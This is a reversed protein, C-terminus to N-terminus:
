PDDNELGLIRRYAARVNETVDRYHALLAAEAPEGPQSRYGMRRALAPIGPARTEIISSGTGYLVHIRQELRRLFSYGERLTDHDDPALYGGASLAELAVSTDPSRVSPDRGNMLQLHQVAFEVDLLGGRGTKLDLRHPRERGLEREMRVRLHHMDGASAAGGGYAAREAVKLARAGLEADGAAFRARILAQREWAAGSSGVSGNVAEGELGSVSVMHYRAFATLSTVLMGHSGSPRLRTDLEYGPGSVHPESILRIVSGAARSFYAGAEDPEPARAQDYIFVVDLDSGYGIERGGLKGMAIVALGGRAGVVHDVARELEEDALAALLRTADRTGITGALDATAVEVMLRQKAIRLGRVLADRREVADADSGLAQLQADIEVAVAASPDSIAGAGFLITDALEPRVLVTEGIFASSALATVLRRLAMRDTALAGVYPEPSSFRALIARLFRAAQEPDPSSNLEELVALALGPFRERTLEGLLDDPRRSLGGLHEAIEGNGYAAEALLYLADGDASLAAAVPEFASATATRHPALQTFHAHVTSRARDLAAVLAREDVWMTRALHGFADGTPILHTQVDSQWQVRHELKRLLAYSESIASVEGDSVFGRSRLRALAPLTGRVRLSPERGGWVLQLTQVFFEAERIGGVGLKLDRKPDPSLERRSRLLLEALSEAVSPDVERRFVYPTVIDRELLEGLERAGASARARLLAAREWFRGWRAYYREVADLSNVLPGQSGEPRLRLDVRWLLGDSSTSGVLEVVRRVVLTWHEHLTVASQGEDTDYVFLLDVDSGANLELGGLKGLGIVALRSPEGSAHRPPGYRAAVEAEAEALARELLADALLSLERSTTEIEAGGLEAPLLERLAIRAKEAWGFRRLRQVRQEAGDPPLSGPRPLLQDFASGRRVARWGRTALTELAEIQWSAQPTLPPFATGLLVALPRAGLDKALRAARDPDISEALRTFDDM